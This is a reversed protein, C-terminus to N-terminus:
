ANRSRHTRRRSAADEAVRELAKARKAARGREATRQPGAQGRVPPRWEPGENRVAHRRTM